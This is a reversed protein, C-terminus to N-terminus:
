NLVELGPLTGRSLFELMAGGGTSIFSIKDRLGMEDLLKITDGGGIVSFADTESIATLIEKSSKDFGKEYFGLPGNWLITKSNKIVEKLNLLTAPGMDVIMDEKDVGNLEKVENNETLVDFPIKINEKNFFTKVDVKEDLLSRGTEFGISKIFNNALAGGIFIEDAVESFKKILPIKTEFKAGGFIVLFPKPSMELKSLNQVEKLLWFGAYSPLFETVGVVSSHVRHSVSFAENVYFDALSALYASFEQSNNEEDDVSRLNELLIVEGENMNQTIGLVDESWLEPIFKVPLFTNLKDAVPRLSDKGSKGFHSILVVKAGFGSLYKITELSKEIRISESDDVIGDEGVPVNFDVRVLATRGKINKLESLSKM